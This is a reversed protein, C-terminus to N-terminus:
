TWVKIFRATTQWDKLQFKIYDKALVEVILSNSQGIRIVQKITMQSTSYSINIVYLFYIKTLGKHDLWYKLQNQYFHTKAILSINQDQYYILFLWKDNLWYIQDISIVFSIIDGPLFKNCRILQKNRIVLHYDFIVIEYRSLYIIQLYIHLYFM